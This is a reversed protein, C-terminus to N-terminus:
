DWIHTEFQIVQQFDKQKLYMIAKDIELDHALDMYNSNKVQEM